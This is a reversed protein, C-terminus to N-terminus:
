AMTRMAARVARLLMDTTFPRSLSAPHSWGSGAAATGNPDGDDSPGAPDGGAGSANTLLVPTRDRHWIDFQVLAAPDTPAGDYLVLRPRLLGPNAETASQGAAITDVSVVEVDPFAEVLTLCMDTQVFLDREILLFM